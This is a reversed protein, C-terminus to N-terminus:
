GSVARFSVGGLKPRTSWIIGFKRQLRAGERRSPPSTLLRRFAYNLVLVDYSIHEELFAIKEQESSM